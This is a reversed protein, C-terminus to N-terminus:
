KVLPSVVRSFLSVGTFKKLLLLLLLLQACVVRVVVYEATYQRVSLVTVVIYM